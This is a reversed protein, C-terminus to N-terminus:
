IGFPSRPDRQGEKPEGLRARVEAAKAAVLTSTDRALTEVLDRPVAGLDVRSVDELAAAVAYRDDSDDSAALRDFVVRASRRKLLLLKAAAM